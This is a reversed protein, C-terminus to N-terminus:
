LLGLFNGIHNQPGNSTGHVIIIGSISGYYNYNSILIVRIYCWFVAAAEMKTM